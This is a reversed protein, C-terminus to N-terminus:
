GFFKFNFRFKRYVSTYLLCPHLNYYHYRGLLSDGGRRYVNLRASGTVIIKYKKKNKDFIGKILSKWKTYKHVEDFILIEADPDFRSKLIIQKDKKDDWNLYQINTYTKEAVLMALTTKGVQRPGGIFVMKEKLDEVIDDVLYRYDFTEMDLFKGHM